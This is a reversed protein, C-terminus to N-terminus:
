NSRGSPKFIPDDKSIERAADPFMDLFDRKAQLAKDLLRNTEAILEAVRASEAVADHQAELVQKHLQDARRYLTEVEMRALEAAGGPDLLASVPVRLVRALSVAEILKLSRIGKEVKLITQPYFGACGDEVMGAAVEAQSMGLGDRIRKVNGGVQDDRLGM